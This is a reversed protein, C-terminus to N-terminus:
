ASWLFAVIRWGESTKILSWVESGGGQSVGDVIYEYDCSMVAIDNRANIIVNTLKEEIKQDSTVIYEIFQEANQRSIESNEVGIVPTSPLEFLSNLQSRDKAILGEQFGEIMRKIEQRDVEGESVNQRQASSSVSDSQISTRKNMIFWGGGSGENNVFYGDIHKGNKSINGTFIAEFDNDTNTRRLRIMSSKPPKAPIITGTLHADWGEVRGSKPIDGYPGNVQILEGTLTYGNQQLIIDMRGNRITERDNAPRGEWDWAGSLDVIDQIQAESAHDCDDDPQQAILPHHHSIIIYLLILNRYIMQCVKIKDM